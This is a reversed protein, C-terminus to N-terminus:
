DSERVDEFVGIQRESETLGECIRDLTEYEQAFRERMLDHSAAKDWRDITLYRSPNQADRLLESGLYGPSGRFLAVWPGTSSYVKDFEAIDKERVIFEWVVQFL